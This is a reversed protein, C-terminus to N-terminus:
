RQRLLRIAEVAERREAEILDEVHGGAKNSARPEQDARTIQSDVRDKARPEAAMRSSAPRPRARPVTQALLKHEAAGSAAHGPTNPLASRHPAQDGSRRRALTEDPVGTMRSSAAAVKARPSVDLMMGAQPLPSSAASPAAPVVLRSGMWCIVGAGIVILMLVGWLLSRLGGPSTLAHAHSASTNLQLIEAVDRAAEIALKSKTRKM